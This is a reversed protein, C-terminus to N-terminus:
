GVKSANDISNDFAADLLEKRQIRPVADHLKANALVSDRLTTVALKHIRSESAYILLADRYSAEM